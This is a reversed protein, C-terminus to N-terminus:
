CCIESYQSWHRRHPERTNRGDNGDCIQKNWERDDGMFSICRWIFLQDHDRNRLLRSPFQSRGGFSSRDEHKWPDMRGSQIILQRSTIHVRSMVRVLKDLEADNMTPFYQGKAVTKTIGVNSCMTMLQLHDPLNAFKTRLRAALTRAGKENTRPTKNTTSLETPMVM